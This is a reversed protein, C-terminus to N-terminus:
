SAPFFLPLANIIFLVLLVGVFIKSVLKMTDKEPLQLFALYPTLMIKAIKGGDFPEMPMFNAVGVLFNLLLLWAIFSALFSFIGAFWEYNQPPTYGPKEREEFVVGIRGLENVKFPHTQTQGNISYTLQFEKKGEVAKRYDNLIHIPTENVALVQMGPELIGAAPAPFVSGCLDIQSEVSQVYLGETRERQVHDFYPAIFPTIIFAGALLSLITGLIFFFTNASAGAAYVRLAEKPNKSELRQIDKEDPEVFAGIPLIGALLLGCSKLKAGVQRALVGHAGEHLILIILFSLWGHLPVTLPVNPLSVGPIVPAVAACASKGLFMKELIDIGSYFLSTIVFGAFGFLGFSAQLALPSIPILPNSQNGLLLGLGLFVGAFLALRKIRSKFARGWLYDAGIGGFGLVMGLDSFWGWLRPRHPIADLWKLPKQFRVMSVIGYTQANPVGKKIAWTFIALLAIVLVIWDTITPAPDQLKSFIYTLAFAGALVLPLVKSPTAPM